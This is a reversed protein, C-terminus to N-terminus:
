ASSQAVKLPDRVSYETRVQETSNAKMRRDAVIALVSLIGYGLFLFFGSMEIFIYLRSRYRLLTDMALVAVLLSLLAGPQDLPRRASRAIMPILGTWPYVVMQRWAFLLQLGPPGFFGLSQVGSRRQLERVLLGSATPRAALLGLATGMALTTSAQAVAYEICSALWVLFVTTAVDKARCSLTRGLRSHLPTHSSLLFMAALGGAVVDWATKQLLAMIASQKGVMRVMEDLFVDPRALLLRWDDVPQPRAFFGVAASGFWLTRRAHNLAVAAAFHPVVAAATEHCFVTAQLVAWAHSLLGNDGEIQEDTPTLIALVLLDAANHQRRRPRIRNYIQRGARGSWPPFFGTGTFAVTPIFFFSSTMVTSAAAAAASARASSARGAGDDLKRVKRLRRRVVAAM